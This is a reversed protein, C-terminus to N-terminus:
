KITRLEMTGIGLQEDTKKDTVTVTVSVNNGKVKIGKRAMDMVILEVQAKLSREVRTRAKHNLLNSYM